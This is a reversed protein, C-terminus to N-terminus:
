EPYTVSSSISGDPALLVLFSDGRGVKFSAHLPGGGGKGGGAGGGQGDLYVLLYRGPSLSAGPPFAWAGAGDSSPSLKYGQQPTHTHTPPHSPAAAAAAADLM